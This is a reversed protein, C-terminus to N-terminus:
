SPGYKEDTMLCKTSCYCNGRQLLIWGKLWGPGYVPNSKSVIVTKTCDKGDCEYTTAESIM